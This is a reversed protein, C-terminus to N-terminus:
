FPCAGLDVNTSHYSKTNAVTEDATLTKIFAVDLSYEAVLLYM